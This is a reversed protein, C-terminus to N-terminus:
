CIEIGLLLPQNCSTLPNDAQGAKPALCHHCPVDVMTEVCVCVCVCVCFFFVPTVYPLWFTTIIVMSPDFTEGQPELNSGRLSKMNQISLMKRVAGQAGERTLTLNSQVSGLPLTPM